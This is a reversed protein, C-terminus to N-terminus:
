SAREAAAPVGPAWAPVAPASVSTFPMLVGIWRPPDANPLILAPDDANPSTAIRIPDAKGSKGWRAAGEFAKLYRTQFATSAGADGINRPIVRGTPPFIGDILEATARALIAEGDWADWIGDDAAFEDAVEQPTAHAFREGMLWVPVRSGPALPARAVVVNDPNKRCFALFERPLRLIADGSVHGNETYAIFLRHGDTAEALAGGNGARAVHVGNLYYRTEETSAFPAAFGLSGASVFLTFPHDEPM